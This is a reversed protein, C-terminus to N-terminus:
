SRNGSWVAKTLATEGDPATVTGIFKAPTSKIHYIQYRHDKMASMTRVQLSELKREIGQVALAARRHRPRTQRDEGGRYRQCGRWKAPPAPRRVRLHMSGPNEPKRLSQLLNILSECTDIEDLVVQKLEPTLGDVKARREAILRRCRAIRPDIADDTSM